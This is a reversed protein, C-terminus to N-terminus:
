ECALFVLEDHQTTIYSVDHHWMILLLSTPLSLSSIVSSFWQWGRECVKKKHVRGHANENRKEVEMAHAM